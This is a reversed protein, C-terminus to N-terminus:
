KVIRYMLSSLGAISLWSVLFPLEPTWLAFIFSWYWAWCYPCRLGRALWTDTVFLSRLVSFLGFPGDLQGLSFSLYFVGLSSALFYAVLANFENVTM